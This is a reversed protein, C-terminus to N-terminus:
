CIASWTTNMSGSQLRPGVAIIYIIKLPHAHASGQLTYVNLITFFKYNLLSVKIRSSHPQQTSEKLSQAKGNACKTFMAYSIVM